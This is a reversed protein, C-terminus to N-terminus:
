LNENSTNNAVVKTLEHNGIIVWEAQQSGTPPPPSIQCKAPRTTLRHPLKPACKMCVLVHIIIKHIKYTAAETIRVSVEHMVVENRKKM